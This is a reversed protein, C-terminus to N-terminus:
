KFTLTICDAFELERHNHGLQEVGQLFRVNRQRLIETRQQNPKAVELYECSRMAFFIGVTALEGTAQELDTSDRRILESIVSIPIAKQHKEEPDTNKSSRIERQLIFAPLGNDDISPNPYGNERFTACVYQV